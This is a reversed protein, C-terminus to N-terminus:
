VSSAGSFITYIRSSFYWRGDIRRFSDRYEGIVKHAGGYIQAEMVSNAKAADGDVEVTLNHILPIPHPKGKGPALHAHIGGRGELRSRVKFGPQDPHGDRIEFWGDPTFLEAVRDPEDYRIHRAYAHILDAVASRAEAADIRRELATADDTLIDGRGAEHTKREDERWIPSPEAPKCDGREREM